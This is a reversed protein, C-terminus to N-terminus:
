SVNRLRIPLCVEDLDTTIPKECLVHIGRELSKITHATHLATTSAIVVAELGPTEIMEEFTAYVQVGYPRLHRNAWELDSEAPSCVCLLNARALLHLINLAHRQGMRGVGVVGINLRKPMPAEEEMRTAM